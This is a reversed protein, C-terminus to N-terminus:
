LDTLEGRKNFLPSGVQDNYSIKKADRALYILLARLDDASVGTKLELSDAVVNEFVNM